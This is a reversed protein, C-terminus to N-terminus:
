ICDDQISYYCLTSDNDLVQSQFIIAQQKYPIGLKEDIKAKLYLIRDTPELTFFIFKNSDIIVCVQM